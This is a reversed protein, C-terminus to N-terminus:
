VKLMVTSSGVAGAQREMEVFNSTSSVVQMGGATIETRSVSASTSINIFRPTRVYISSNGTFSYCANLVVSDNITSIFPVIYYTTGNVDIYGDQGAPSADFSTGNSFGNEKVKTGSANVDGTFFYLISDLTTDPNVESMWASSGNYLVFSLTDLGTQITNMLPNTVEILGFNLTTDQKFDDDWFVTFEYKQNGWDQYYEYDFPANSERFVEITSWDEYSNGNLHTYNDLIQSVYAWLIYSDNLQYLDDGDVDGIFYSVASLTDVGSISKYKNSQFNFSAIADNINTIGYRDLELQNHDGIDDSSDPPFFSMRYYNNRPLKINFYGRDDVFTSDYYSLNLYGEGPLTGYGSNGTGLNGFWYTSETDGIVDDNLSEDTLSTTTDIDEINYWNSFDEPNSQDLEFKIGFLFNQEQSYHM